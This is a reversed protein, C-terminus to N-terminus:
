DFGLCFRFQSRANKRELAQRPIPLRFGALLVHFGIRTQHHTTIGCILRDLPYIWCEVYDPHRWLYSILRVGSDRLANVQILAGHEFVGCVAPAGDYRSRRAVERLPAPTEPNEHWHM